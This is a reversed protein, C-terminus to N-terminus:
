TGRCSGADDARARRRRRRHYWSARHVGPRDRAYFQPPAISGQPVLVDTVVDQASTIALGHRPAVTGPRPRLWSYGNWGVVVLVCKAVGSSVAMAANRIAALSSAGGMASTASFAVDALGLNASLEEASTFGPPPCLGDVEGPAIGADDLAAFAADLMLEVPSQEAGRFFPTEGVGVIAARGALSM